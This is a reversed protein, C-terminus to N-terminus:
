TSSWLHGLRSECIAKASATLARSHMKRDQPANIPSFQTGCVAGLMM